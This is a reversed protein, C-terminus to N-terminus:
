RPSPQSSVSLALEAIIPRGFQETTARVILPANWPGLDHEDFQLVLECDTSSPRVECPQASVGHVHRAPALEVKIVADNLQASRRINLPLRVTAGPRAIMTRQPSEVTLLPPSALVVVQDDDNHTSFSVVHTTGDPEEMTASASIVARGTRGQLTWAAVSIPYDFETVDAPITIRPGSMGMLHRFQCDALEIDIPGEFDGRDLRFHWQLSSGCPVYEISTRGAYKFPTPLAVMLAVADIPPEGRPTVYTADRAIQQGNIEAEGRVHLHSLQLAATADAKFTWDVSSAGQGIVTEVTTVGPPLGAVHLAIAGEFGGTRQASVKLTAEGGRNLTLADTAVHLQFDPAPPPTIHLRYAFRDGGRSAFQEAVRVTYSGDVPVTFVGQSDTEGPGIDEARLLERGEADLVTLVSDLPSDLRAAKLDLRWVEGQKGTLLWDDTEGPHRIRGNLVAPLEVPVPTSGPVDSEIYELLQDVDVLVRNTSGEPLTFQKWVAAGGCPSPGDCDLPLEFPSQPVHQGALHCAVTTGARGGLPYIADVYPQQTITLRYVHSQSGSYRVDHIRVQHTGSQAAQFRVRADAGLNNTGEAIRRGAPDRIEVRAILPYGLRAANVECTISEGAAAEFTWVDVDERPFVRGNITVPLTVPVPIPEGEIETEVIEPLDGVVFKMSSTVGQSTWVRWHHVGPSADEAVSLRGVFDKPYDEKAQSESLSLLPGEFWTMQSARQLKPEAEIGQGDFEWDCKQNLNCGGVTVAVTTGRQAGAPFVYNALPLDARLSDVATIFLLGAVAVFRVPSTM